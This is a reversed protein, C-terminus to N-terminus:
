LFINIYFNNFLSVDGFTSISLQVMKGATIKIVANSRSIILILDLAIKHHLRYWETMYTMKGIKQCQVFESKMYTKNKM